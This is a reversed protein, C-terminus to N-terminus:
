PHSAQRKRGEDYLRGGALEKTTSYPPSNLSNRKNYHVGIQIEYKKPAMLLARLTLNQTDKQFATALKVWALSLYVKSPETDDITKFHKHIFKHQTRLFFTKGSSSSLRISFSTRISSPFEREIGKRASTAAVHLLPLPHSRELGNDTNIKYCLSLLYGKFRSNIATHVIQNVQFM